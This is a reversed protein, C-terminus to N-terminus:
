CQQLQPRRGQMAATASPTARADGGGHCAGAPYARDLRQTIWTSSLWYWVPTHSRRANRYIWPICSLSAKWSKVNQCVPIKTHRRSVSVRSGLWSSVLEYARRGQLMQRRVLSCRGDQACPVPKPDQSRKKKAYPDQSRLSGHFKFYFFTIWPVQFLFFHDM